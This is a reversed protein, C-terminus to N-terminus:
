RLNVFFLTDSFLGYIISNWLRRTLYESYNCNLLRCDYRNHAIITKTFYQISVIIKIIKAVINVYIM